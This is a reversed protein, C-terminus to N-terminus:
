KYKNFNYNRLNEYIVKAPFVVDTDYDNITFDELSKGNSKKEELFNLLEESNFNHIVSNDNNLVLWNKKQLNKTLILTPNELYDAYNVYKINNETNDNVKLDKQSNNQENKNKIKYINNQSINNINKTINNDINNINNNIYKNSYLNINNEDNQSNKWINQPYVNTDNNISNANNQTIYNLHSFNFNNEARKQNFYINKNLNNNNQSKINRYLMNNVNNIYLNKNNNNVYSINNNFNLKSIDMKNLNNTNNINMNPINNGQINSSFPLYNNNNTKMFNQNKGQYNINNIYNIHNNYPSNNRFMNQNNYFPMQSNNSYPSNYFNIYPNQNLIFNQNNKNDIYPNNIKKMQIMQLYLQNEKQKQQQIMILNKIQAEELDINIEKLNENNTANNNNNNFFRSNNRRKIINDNQNNDFNNHNQSEIFIDNFINETDFINFHKNNNEQREYDNSIYNDNNKDINIDEKLSYNEDMDEKIDQILNDSINKPSNSSKINNINNDSNSKFFIDVDIKNRESINDFKINNTNIEEKHFGLNETMKDEIYKPIAKFEIKTNNYDEVNDNAWEPEDEDEEDETNKLLKLNQKKENIKNKQEIEIKDYSNPELNQKLFTKEENNDNEENLTNYNPSINSKKKDESTEKKIYFYVEEDKGYTALPNYVKKYKPRLIFRMRPFKIYTKGNSELFCDSKNFTKNYIILDPITSKDSIIDRHLRGTRDYLKQWPEVYFYKDLSNQIFLDLEKFKKFRSYNKEM